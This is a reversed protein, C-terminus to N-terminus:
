RLADLRREAEARVLPDRTAARAHRLHAELFRGLRALRREAAAAPAAGGRADRLAAEVEEAAEPSVLEQRGVLVRVVRDPKPLITLPLVAETVPQPVTYILRLGETRFWSRSWTRVMARAEDEHLGRGRLIKQVDAELGPLVSAIPQFPRASLTGAATARPDVYCTVDYRAEGGGPGVELAVVQAVQHASANQFSWGGKGTARGAFPLELRGLGRYFLYHEAEVPGLRSAGVRPRTRLLAARVERAYAWPDDPAVRPIADALEASPAVGSPLAEVDWELFSREVTSLDLPGADCPGEPPGLLDTVPYWQSILGREFEVRVRLARPVDTHVYIVPTEMRHTVRNVPVELGKYGQARLPCDRVKSRSYVFEPLAEEEHQMGELGVGDLGALSTFTGWEHVVLPAPAPPEAAAGPLAWPAWPLLGLLLGPLPVPFRRM